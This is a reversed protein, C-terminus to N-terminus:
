FTGKDLKNLQAFAWARETCQWCQSCRTMQRETCSHTLEILDELDNDYMLQLIDTKLMDVFPLVIKPHEARTSRQPAGPLQDLEPPNKNLANFLFDVTHNSLIEEVATRSQERHHATPNGVVITTPLNVNFRNNVYEVIRDAYLMAGDVKDITFSQLKINPDQKVLLGLLIASDLGGSLMIGYSLNPSISIM